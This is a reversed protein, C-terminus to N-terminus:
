ASHHLRRRFIVHDEAIFPPTKGASNTPITRVKVAKPRTKQPIQFATLSGSRGKPADNMYHGGESGFRGNCVYGATPIGKRM